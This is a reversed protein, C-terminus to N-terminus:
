KRRIKFSNKDPVFFLHLMKSHKIANDWYIKLMGKQTFTQNTYQNILEQQNSYTRFIMQFEEWFDKANLLSCFIILILGSKKM